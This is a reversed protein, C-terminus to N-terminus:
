MTEITKWKRCLLILQRMESAMKMATAFYIHRGGQAEKFKRKVLPATAGVHDGVLDARGAEIFTGTSLVKEDKLIEAFLRAVSTKATGPNGTFVMHLSAKERAIGKDICLKNLKYHALAKDIIKKVYALGIM